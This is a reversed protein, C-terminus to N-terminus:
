KLQITYLIDAGTQESSTTAELRLRRSLRYRMIFTSVADFLGIGYGVYLDPTLYRGVTFATQDAAEPATGLTLYSLISSDPMPPESFLKLQPNRANGTVQAGVLISGDDTTATAATEITRTIRMDLNPNDLPSNSFLVRGREIQLTQGYLTYEGAEVEIAGNGQLASRPTQKIALDGALKGQFDFANVRVDDGFILRVQVFLPLGNDERSQEIDDDEDSVIVVDPSTGVRNVGGSGGQPSLYAEPIVVQGTLRARSKNIAFRLDPSVLAQLDSADAVQFKEGNLNLTLEGDAPQLEGSLQLEGPGSDASGTLELTGRGDSVVALQIDTIQTAVEPVSFAGDELVLSGGIAPAALTGSFDLDALIQGAIDQVMPVVASVIDLGQINATLGGNLRAANPLDIIQVDAQLRGISGTDLELTATANNGDSEAKLNGGGLTITAPMGNATVTLDGPSVQLDVNGQIRGDPQTSGTVVGSLETDTEVNGAPLFAAFRQVDLQALEVRGRAGRDANWDGRLCLEATGSTLCGQDIIAMELAIQLPMTQALTWSGALTNRAALETIQGRWVNEAQDLNGTLAVQFAEPDGTLSVQLNHDAPTGAGAMRLSQWTQGALQLDTGTLTLQSRTAGSIDITANGELRQIATEGLALQQIFMDLEARPEDRPGIIDGTSTVTGTATPWLESIAPVNLQWDINWGQAVQGDITLNAEGARLTFKPIVLNEDNVEVQGDGQVTQGRLTGTLKELNATANVRDQAIKGQSTLAFTLNGPLDPWNIGPNLTTGSLAAQWSVTPQWRTSLNGEVAGGLTSGELQVAELAQASGKGKLRWSGQPVAQGGVQTDVNFQYDKISGSTEFTGRTSEIQPTGVVPWALSQWQGEAQFALDAFNLRGNATLSLDGAPAKVALQSIVIAEDSGQAELQVNLKGLDPGALATTAELTYDQLTGQLAFQGQPSQITPEGTLPWALAQWQGSVNLTEKALDIDAQLTLALPHEAAGVVFEEVLIGQNGGTIQFRGDLPGIEPLRTAFGGQGQFDNLNGQTQLRATLRNGTLEPSFAGLNGIQLRLEAAWDPNTLLQSLTGELNAEMAGTTAFDVSLTEEIPGQIDGQLTLPPYDTSQLAGELTLTLPMNGALTLEGEANLQGQPMSLTFQDVTITQEQTAAQLVAEHIIVPQEAEDPWIRFNSIRSQALTIQLPLAIDKLDVPQAPPPKPEETPPPLRLDIGDAQLLDIQLRGLFLKAPKWKLTAQQLAFELEGDQYYLDEISLPSILRGEIREYRLTGPLFKEATNLAMRLGTETAMVFGLVIVLVALLVFFPGFIYRLKV